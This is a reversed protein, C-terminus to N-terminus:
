LGFVVLCICYSCLFWGGYRRLQMHLALWHNLKFKHQARDMDYTRSSTHRSRIQDKLVGDQEKNVFIQYIGADTQHEKSYIKAQRIQYVGMTIDRLEKEYLQPLESIESADMTKWITRRKDKKNEIVKQHLKNDSKALTMMRKAMM